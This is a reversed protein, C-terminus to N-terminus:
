PEQELRLTLRVDEDQFGLAGYFARAGANAAGTHLTVHRLGQQRAWIVAAQMLRRGVGSRAIDAAVALEGIYADEDGTFHRNRSVSVAGVVRSSADDAAVFVAADGALAKDISADFWTRAAAIVADRDRWPPIGEALRPALALVQERDAAQVLRITATAATEDSMGASHCM